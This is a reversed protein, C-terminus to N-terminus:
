LGKPKHSTAMHGHYFCVAAAPQGQKQSREGSPLWSSAPLRIAWGSGQWPEKFDCAETIESRDPPPLTVTEAKTDGNVAERLTLRCEPIKKVKEKGGAKLGERPHPEHLM